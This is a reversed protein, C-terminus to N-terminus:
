IEKRLKEIYDSFTMSFQLDQVLGFDAYTQFLKCFDEFLFTNEVKNEINIYFNNFFNKAAKLNYETYEPNLYYDIFLSALVKNSERIVYIINEPNNNLIHEFAYIFNNVNDEAQHTFFFKTKTVSNANYRQYYSINQISIIDNPNTQFGLLMSNFGVDENLRSKPHFHINNLEIFFRRYMKSFVHDLDMATRSEIISEEETLFVSFPSNAMFAQPNQRLVKRLRYLSLCDSLTDDSDVFVIFENYTSDLGKQRAIGPGSNQELKIYNISLLSDFMAIISTYDRSSADDIITIDIDKVITQNLISGLCRILMKDSTNYIPIIIDVKNNFEM